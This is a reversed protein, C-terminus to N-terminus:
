EKVAPKAQMIKNWDATSYTKDGQKVGTFVGNKDLTVTFNAQMMPRINDGELSIYPNGIAPSVGIFLQNGKTDGIFTEASPFADGTQLANVNLTGAKLNETLTFKTHINIDPSLPETLPNAAKMNATFSTISNGAKDTTAKFGSINAHTTATAKGLIPHSTENSWANGSKFTGATPDVTFVHQMRSTVSGGEGKGLATTYGRKAGDGDFGGGFTPFPAFSRIHVPYPWRGDPDTMSIPNQLCYAYSNTDPAQQAMPDVSLWFSLRPEYYRAGYYYYGTNVIGKEESQEENQSARSIRLSNIGLEYEGCYDLKYCGM